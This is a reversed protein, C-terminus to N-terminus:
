SYVGLDLRALLDLIAQRGAETAFLERASRAGLGFAPGDMWRRAAEKTGFVSTARGMIARGDSTVRLATAFAADDAREVVGRLRERTQVLSEGKRQYSALSERRTMRSAYVSSPPSDIPAFNHAVLSCSMYSMM